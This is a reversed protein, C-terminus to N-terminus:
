SSGKASARPFYELQWLVEGHWSTWTSTLQACSSFKWVHIRQEVFAIRRDACWNSDSQWQLKGSDLFSWADTEMECLWRSTTWSANCLGQNAQSIALWYRKSGFYMLDDAHIALAWIETRCWCFDSAGFSARPMWLHGQCIRNERLVDAEDMGVSAFQDMRWATRSHKMEEPIGAFVFDGKVTFYVLISRWM